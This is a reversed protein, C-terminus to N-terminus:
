LKSRVSCEHNIAEQLGFVNFLSMADTKYYNTSGDAKEVDGYKASSYWLKVGYDSISRGASRAKWGQPWRSPALWSSSDCSGYIPLSFSTPNSTVGLLHHWVDPVELSMEYIAHLLRLRVNPAAQVLNGVCIRDYESTISKYYDKGDLLPHFVPIPTIGTEREIMARTIPKHAKGGQDMEIVGWVDQGYTTVISYYLDKLKQFGDIEDPALSLATDMSVGTKRVHQMTLNFIGSDLLIRRGEDLLKKFCDLAQKTELENVAVLIHEYPFADAGADFHRQASTATFYAFRREKDFTGGTTQKKTV